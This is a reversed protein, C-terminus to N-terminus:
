RVEKKKEYRRKRAVKCRRWEDRFEGDYSVEVEETYTVYNCKNCKRRRFVDYGEHAYETDNTILRGDYCNPCKM